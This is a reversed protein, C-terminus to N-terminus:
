VLRIWSHVTCCLIFLGVTTTRLLPHSGSPHTRIFFSSSLSLEDGSYPRSIIWRCRGRLLLDVSLRTIYRFPSTRYAALCARHTFARLTCLSRAAFTYTYHRASGFRGGPYRRLILICYLLPLLAYAPLHLPCCCHPARARCSFM